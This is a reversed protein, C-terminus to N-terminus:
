TPQKLILTLRGVTRQFFYILLLDTISTLILKETRQNDTSQSSNSRERETYTHTCQFFFCSTNACLEPDSGCSKHSPVQCKIFTGRCFCNHTVKLNYTLLLNKRQRYQVQLLANETAKLSAHHACVATLHLPHTPSMSLLSPCM